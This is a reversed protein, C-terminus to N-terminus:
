IASRLPPVLLLNQGGMRKGNGGNLRRLAHAARTADSRDPNSLGALILADTASRWDWNAEDSDWVFARQLRERIPDPATYGTNSENLADMTPRDLTWCEGGRYLDRAQAWVQQMDVEHDWDIARCAITWYRRNGTDDHLYATDNVSGFFVTRRAYKAQKRAYPLRLTDSDATLFAKLASVDAKRFTSDLEGLEVLWYSIARKISDKDDPRLSLGDKIVGLRAPVLMRFWQTKGIYQDGQLVLVGHASVGTPSYAAACASILWKRLLVDRLAEGERVHLTAALEPIRDRLDWPKSEIWEVVPNYPNADALMAIYEPVQALPMRFKACTSLIVSLAANAQNDLSFRGGPILVEEEKTIVNYRVTVKSRRLIERLNEITSLPKGSSTEDPLPSYIDTTGPDGAQLAGTPQAIRTEAPTSIGALHRDDIRPRKSANEPKPVDPAVTIDSVFDHERGDAGNKKPEHPGNWIVARARAWDRFTTWTFAYEQPMSNVAENTVDIVKLEPTQDAILDAIGHAAAIGWPSNEPWILVAHGAIPLWDLTSWSAPQRATHELFAREAGPWTMVSYVAGAYERVVACARACPVILIPKVSDPPTDVRGASPQPAADPM